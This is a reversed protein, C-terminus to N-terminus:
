RTPLTVTVPGPGVSVNGTTALLSQLELEVLAENGEKYKRTVKGRVVVTDGVDGEVPEAAVLDAQGFM